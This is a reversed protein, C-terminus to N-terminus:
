AKYLIQFGAQKFHHDATIAITLKSEKMVVFSICDTLGWMKDGREAYYRLARQMLDSDVSVVRMNKTMYCQQSFAIAGQRNSAALANGVEVLIAETIWVETAVQLRPLLEIAWQHYKDRRNLLAQIYVTDLFLREGM